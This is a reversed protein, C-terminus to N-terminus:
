IDAIRAIDDASSGTAGAGGASTSASTPASASSIGGAVGTSDLATEPLSSGTVLGSVELSLSFTLADGALFVVADAVEAVFRGTEPVEAVFLGLEIEPGLVAEDVVRVGPEFPLVRPLGGVRGVVVDPVTRLGRLVDVVDDCRERGDSLEASSFDRETALEPSSFRPIVPDALRMDSAPLVALVLAGVFDVVEVKSRRDLTADVVPERVVARGVVVVVVRVAVLGAVVVVAVFRSLVAGLVESPSAALNCDRSPLSVSLSAVM